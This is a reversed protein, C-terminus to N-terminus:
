GQEYNKVCTRQWTDQVGGEVGRDRNRVATSGEELDRKGDSGMLWEMVTGVDGLGAKKARDALALEVRSLATRRNFTPLNTPSLPPSSASPSGINSIVTSSQPLFSSTIPHPYHRHLIRLISTFANDNCLDIILWECDDERGRRTKVQKDKKYGEQPREAVGWERRTNDAVKRKRTAEETDEDKDRESASVDASSAGTDKSGAGTGRVGGGLDRDWRKYVGRILKGGDGQRSEDDVPSTSRSSNLTTRTHLRVSSSISSTAALALTHPRSDSPIPNVPPYDFHSTPPQSSSTPRHCRRQIPQRRPHEGNRTQTAIYFM